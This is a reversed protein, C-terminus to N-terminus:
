LPVLRLLIQRIREKERKIEQQLEKDITEDKGMRARQENWTNMNAIHEVSTEHDKLRDNIHRWDGFGDHALKKQL